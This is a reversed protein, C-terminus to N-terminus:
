RERRHAPIRRMARAWGKSTMWPLTISARPPVSRSYGSKPRTLSMRNAAAQGCPRMSITRAEDLARLAADFAKVAPEILMPAQASRRELRRVANSLMPLPSHTGAIMDYAERLDVAVKEAQMLTTRRQALSAEESSQPNLQWSRM